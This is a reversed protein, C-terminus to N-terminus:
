YGWPDTGPARVHEIYLGTVSAGQADRVHWYGSGGNHVVTGPQWRRRAPFRFECADGAALRETRELDTMQQGAM